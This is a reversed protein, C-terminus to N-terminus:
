LRIRAFVKGFRDDFRNRSGADSNAGFVNGFNFAAGLDLMNTLACDVGLTVPIRYLDGFGLEGGFGDRVGVGSLPGSIAAGVSVAVQRTAQVQLTLPITLVERNPLATAGAGGAAGGGGVIEARGTDRENLGVNLQPALTVAFPYMRWRAAVRGEANLTFPDFDTANLAAGLAFDWTDSQGLSWITDVGVDNYVKSCGNARGSVCLGLFHRVGVTLKDSV